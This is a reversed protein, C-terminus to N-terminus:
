LKRHTEVVLFTLRVLTLIATSNIGNGDGVCSGLFLTTKIRLHMTKLFGRLPNEYTYTTYYWISFGGLPKEFTYTYFGSLPKEFVYKTYSWVSFGRLPKEFRCTTYSSNSFDHLPVVHIPIFINNQSFLFNRCILNLYLCYMKTTTYSLIRVNSRGASYVIPRIITGSTCSFTETYWFFYHPVFIIITGSAVLCRETSWFIM